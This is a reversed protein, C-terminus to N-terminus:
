VTVGFFALVERDLERSVPEAVFPESTDLVLEGRMWMEHRVLRSKTAFTSTKVDRTVHEAPFGGAVSWEILDERTPMTGDLKRHM